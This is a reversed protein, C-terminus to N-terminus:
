NARAKRRAKRVCGACAVLVRDRVIFVHDTETTQASCILCSPAVTGDAAENLPRIGGGDRHRQRRLAERFLREAIAAQETETSRRWQRALDPDARFARVTVALMQEYRLESEAATIIQAMPPRRRPSTM